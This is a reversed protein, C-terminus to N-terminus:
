EVEKTIFVSDPSPFFDEDEVMDKSDKLGLPLDRAFWRLAKIAQVKVGKCKFGYVILYQEFTLKVKGVYVHMESFSVNTRPAAHKIALDFGTERIDRPINQLVLVSRFFEILEKNM